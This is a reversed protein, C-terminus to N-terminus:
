PIPCTGHPYPEIQEGFDIEYRVRKIKSFCHQSRIERLSSTSWQSKPIFYSTEFCSLGTRRRSSSDTGLHKETSSRNMGLLPRWSTAYGWAQSMDRQTTCVNHIRKCRLLVFHNAHHIQQHVDLTTLLGCLHSWKNIDLIGKFLQPFHYASFLLQTSHSPFLPLHLSM